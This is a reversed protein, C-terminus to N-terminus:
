GRVGALEEEIAAALDGHGHALAARIGADFAERAGELDGLEARARGILRYAAGLDGKPLMAIYRRLHELARAPDGTSLLENGAMYHVMPEEPNEAVLGLVM